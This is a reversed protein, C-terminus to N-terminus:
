VRDEGCAPNPGSTHGVYTHLMSIDCKKEVPPANERCSWGVSRPAARRPRRGAARPAYGRPWARARTGHGARRARSASFIVYTECRRGPGWGECTAGSRAAHFLVNERVKPGLCKPVAGIGSPNNILIWRYSQSIPLCIRYIRCMAYSNQLSKLLISLLSQRHNGWQASHNRRPESLSLLSIAFSVVRLVSVLCGVGVAPPDAGHELPPM